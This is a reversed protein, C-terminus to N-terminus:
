IWQLWGPQGERAVALGHLGKIRILSLAARLGLGALDVQREAQLFPSLKWIM